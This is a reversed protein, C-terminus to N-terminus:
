IISILGQLLYKVTSLLRATGEVAKNFISPELISYLFSLTKIIQSCDQIINLYFPKLTRSTFQM